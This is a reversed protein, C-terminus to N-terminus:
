VDAHILVGPSDALLTSPGVGLTESHSGLNHMESLSGPSAAPGVACGSFRQESYDEDKPARQLSYGSLPVLEQRRPEKM